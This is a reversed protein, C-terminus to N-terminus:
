NAITFGGFPIGDIFTQALGLLLGTATFTTSTAPGGPGDGPQFAFGTGNGNPLASLMYSPITFTGASAPATCTVTAGTNADVYSSLQMEVHGTSGNGNWTVTMGKSRSVTLNNASGPSTLTPFPQISVNATFPGVDKGGTGTITYNGPVLFTGATSLTPTDGTHATVTMTGNPGKITFSSGADLPTLNTFAVSTGRLSSSTKAICAGVPLNDLYSGAFPQSAASV